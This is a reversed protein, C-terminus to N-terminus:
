IIRVRNRLASRIHTPKVREVRATSLQEAEAICFSQARRRHVFEVEAIQPISIIQALGDASHAHTQFRLPKHSTRARRSDHRERRARNPHLTDAEIAKVDSRISVFQFLDAVCKLPEM